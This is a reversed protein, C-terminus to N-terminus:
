LFKWKVWGGGKREITCPYALRYPPDGVVDELCYKEWAAKGHISSVRRVNLRGTVMSTRTEGGAMADFEAHATHIRKRLTRADDRVRCRTQFTTGWLTLYARALKYVLQPVAAVDRSINAFEEEKPKDDVLVFGDDEDDESERPVREGPDYKGTITSNGAVTGHRGRCAYLHYGEPQPLDNPALPDALQNGDALTAWAGGLGRSEKDRHAMQKTMGANPRPVLADFGRDLMDWAYVGVYNAVNPALQTMTGYWEGPGPVPDIAFINIPIQRLDRGGYAYLFWAAVIAAVAGRSHGIFNYTDGRSSAALNAGQLALAADMWGIAQASYSRQNRGDAYTRVYERLGSPAALPGVLLPDSADMQDAWDNEGVGRVTVSPTTARLANSIDMHIRVPIYGTNPDYINKDSVLYPKKKGLLGLLRYEWNRTVEGEDRSCATGSFCVTYTPM